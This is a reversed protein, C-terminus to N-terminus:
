MYYILSNSWRCDFCKRFGNKQIMGISVTKIVIDKKVIFQDLLIQNQFTMIVTGQPIKSTSTM